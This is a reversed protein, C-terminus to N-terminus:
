LMKDFLVNVVQGPKPYKEGALPVVPLHFSPQSINRIIVQAQLPVPPPLSTLWVAKSWKQQKTSSRGKHDTHNTCATLVSMGEYQHITALRSDM